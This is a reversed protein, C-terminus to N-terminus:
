CGTPSLKEYRSIMFKEDRLCNLYQVVSGNSRAARYEPTSCHGTCLIGFNKAM